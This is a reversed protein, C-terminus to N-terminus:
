EGCFPKLPNGRMCRGYSRDLSYRTYGFSPPPQTHYDIRNQHFKEYNNWRFGNYRFAPYGYLSPTGFINGEYFMLGGAVPNGFVGFGGCGGVGCGGARAFSAGATMALIAAALYWGSRRHQGRM